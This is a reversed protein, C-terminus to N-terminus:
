SLLQRAHALASDSLNAGGLMQALEVLREESNLQKMNSRVNGDLEEKFVKFHFKGKAAVQPLHSITVVQMHHAMELMLDAIRNSVEGSVGTDIEDFLITPLQIYRALISKVALMIRSMEGGSAVKSLPKFNKGKDSSMSLILSDMGYRNFDGQKECEIRLRTNPMQLDMLLASLQDLFGPIVEKRAKYLQNAIKEAETRAVAIKEELEKITGEGDDVEQIKSELDDRYDILEKIDIVGHKKLLKFLLELREEVRMLQDPEFELQDMSGELEDSIDQLEIRMSEIRDFFDQYSKDIGAIRRFKGSIETLQTLVGRQEEKSSSVAFEIVERIEEVHSLKELEAELEEQEGIKLQAEILENLVFQNYDYERRAKNQSEILEELERTLRKISERKDNFRQLLDRNDAITDLVGYQYGIEALQLTEHQSHVDILHDSLEQLVQLTVPTDNIFARSKGSPTLERRLLTTSEYDLDHKEFFSLLDFHTLDFNAEIICKKSSDLILSNDARRGLVLSLGGLLISKGAGTEGTIISFGESFDVTLQEILAFNQISLSSLM